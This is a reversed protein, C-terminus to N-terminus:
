GAGAAEERGVYWGFLTDLEMIVERFWPEAEEASIDGRLWARLVYNHATVVANAALEARLPIGAEDGWWQHIFRRFLREYQTISARERERLAEVESTLAYRQRARDGEGLYYRLVLSGAESLAVKETGPSATTLRAEIATLLEDHAPFVVQEKTRFMRFFTTRGVGARSAIDEVTTADYGHEAFLEFAADILRDRLSKPEQMRGGQWRMAR